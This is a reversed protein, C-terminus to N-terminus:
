PKSKAVKDMDTANVILKFRKYWSYITVLSEYHQLAVNNSARHSFISNEATSLDCGGIFLDLM